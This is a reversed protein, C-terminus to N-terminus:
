TSALRFGPTGRPLRITTVRASPGSRGAPIDHRLVRLHAETLEKSPYLGLDRDLLLRVEEYVRIAEAQQGSGALAIMLQAHVLENLPDTVAVARLLSLVQDHRGLQFAATAYRLLVAVLQHRVLTVGPSARSSLDVDVLPDGRWLNM